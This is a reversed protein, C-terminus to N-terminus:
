QLAIVNHVVYSCPLRLGEYRTHLQKTRYHHLSLEKYNQQKSVLCNSRLCGNQTAQEWTFLLQEREYKSIQPLSSCWRGPILSRSRTWSVPQTAWRVSRSRYCSFPFCLSNIKIISLVWQILTQTPNMNECCCILSIWTDDCSTPLSILLQKRIHTWRLPKLRATVGDEVTFTTRLDARM